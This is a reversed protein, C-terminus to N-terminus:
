QSFIKGFSQNVFEFCNKFQDSKKQMLEVSNTSLIQFGTDVNARKKQVEAFKTELAGATELIKFDVKKKLHDLKSQLDTM